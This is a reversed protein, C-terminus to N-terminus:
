ARSHYAPRAKPRLEALCLVHIDRIERCRDAVSVAPAVKPPSRVIIPPRLPLPQVTVRPAPQAFRCQLSQITLVKEARKDNIDEFYSAYGMNDGRTPRLAKLLGWDMAGFLRFLPPM